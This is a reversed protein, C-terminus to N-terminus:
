RHHCTARSYSKNVDLTHLQRCLGTTVATLRHSYLRGLRLIRLTSPLLGDLSQEWKDAEILDLETLGIPLAARM